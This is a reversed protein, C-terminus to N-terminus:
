ESTVFITTAQACTVQGYMVCEFSYEGEELPVFYVDSVEGPDVEISKIAPGSVLSMESVSGPVSQVVTGDRGCAFPLNQARGRHVIKWPAIAAFFQPATFSYPRKSNNWIRLISAKGKVFRSPTTTIGTDSAELVCLNAASWDASAVPSGAPPGPTATRTCAAIATALVVVVLWNRIM